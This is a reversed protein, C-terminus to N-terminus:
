RNRARRIFIAFIIPTLTMLVVLSILPIGVYSTPYCVLLICCIFLLCLLLALVRVMRSALVYQTQNELKAPPNIVGTPVYAGVMLLVTLVTGIGALIFLTLRSGYDNPNGAADFHTPITEPSHRYMWAALVWMVVILFLAVMEFITSEMTRGMRVHKVDDCGSRFFRFFRLRFLNM